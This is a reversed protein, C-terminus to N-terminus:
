EMYRAYRKRDEEDRRAKAEREAALGKNSARTGRRASRAREFAVGAVALVGAIALWIVPLRFLQPSAGSAGVAGWAGLAVAFAGVLPPLLTPLASSLLGAVLAGAMAGGLLAYNRFENSLSEGIALGATAGAVGAAAVSALNPALLGGALFVVGVTAIALNASVPLDIKWRLLVLAAALAGALGAVLGAAPRYARHGLVLVALGTVAFAVAGGAGLRASLLGIEIVRAAVDEM